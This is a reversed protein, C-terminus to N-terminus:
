DCWRKNSVRRSEEIKMEKKCGTYIMYCFFLFFSFFFFVRNTKMAETLAEVKSPSHTSHSTPHVDGGGRPPLQAPQAGGDRFTGLTDCGRRGQLSPHPMYMRLTVVM